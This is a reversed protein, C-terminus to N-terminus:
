SNSDQPITASDQAPSLPSLGPTRGTPAWPGPTVIWWKGAHPFLRGFFTLSVRVVSTRFPDRRREVPTSLDTKLRGTGLRPAADPRAMSLDTVM